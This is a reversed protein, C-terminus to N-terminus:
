RCECLQLRVHQVQVSRQVQGGETYFKLRGMIPDPRTGDPTTNMYLWETSDLNELSVDCDKVSKQGVTFGEKKSDCGSMFVTFGLLTFTTLTRPNM